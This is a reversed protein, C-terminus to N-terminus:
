DLMNLVCKSKNINLNTTSLLQFEEIKKKCKGKLVKIKKVM